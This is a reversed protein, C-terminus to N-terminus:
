PARRVIHSERRGQRKRTRRPGAPMHFAHTGPEHELGHPVPVIVMVREETSALQRVAAPASTQPGVDLDPTVQM